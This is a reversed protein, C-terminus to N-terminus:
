PYQAEEQIAALEAM